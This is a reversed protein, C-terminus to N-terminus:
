KGLLEELKKNLAEGRLNAAVIKGDPGILFNSPITKIGYSQVAEGRGGKLDNAQPWTLGDQKIADLWKDKSNEEDLSIGLIEFGKSHNANYTKVLNPNEARCPKCWSAWFDLLVYKGKFDALSVQKGNIDPLNISPAQVGPSTTRMIEIERAVQQGQGSNRLNASLSNYLNKLESVEAKSETMGALAKLSFYSTPHQQVYKKKVEIGEKNAEDWKKQMQAMFVQDNRKESPINALETNVVKMKKMGNTLFTEYQLNEDNIASGTIVANKMSDKSTIVTEKDLYFNKFDATFQNLDEIKVNPQVILLLTANTIDPVTGEFYFEGNEIKVSDLKKGKETLYSLYVRVPSNWNGVKGKIRFPNQQAQQASCTASLMPITLLLHLIIKRM